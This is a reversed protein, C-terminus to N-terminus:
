DIIKHLPYSVIAKAGLRVLDPIMGRETKQDVVVELAVWQADALENVTPSTASPLRDLIAPLKERPVNMKVGIHTRAVIAGRLLLAVDEIKQRKADDQWATQNAILRTTSTLLTDIVRLKNARLSSGTETVDVIADVLRAKVETLAWSFEVKIDIGRDAFYRRTTQVLETAVMGGALQEPSDIGAEEPVALVWRVPRATARSYELECVEHVNSGNEVVWDHGTIGFDVVGDEVYRSMEQARFMVCSLDPDDIDPTYSRARLSVDFGARRLLALTPEELSGKPLGLRLTDDQRKMPPGLYRTRVKAPHADHQSRESKVCVDEQRTIADGNDPKKRQRKAPPLRSGPPRKKPLCKKAPPKKKPTVAPKDTAKNGKSPAATPPAPPGPLATVRPTVGDAPPPVHSPTIDPKKDAWAQLARHADIAEGARLLRLLQSEADQPLTDPVIVGEEILLACLKEDVPMAHVGFALLAVSAAIYSPIAPMSDLYARQDKKGKEAISRMSWDHERHFVENLCHRMRILRNHVDPYDEGIIDTVEHTQSIRLENVDVMVEFIADFAQVARQTNTNWQLFAMVMQLMPDLADPRHEPMDQHARKLLANFKKDNATDKAM